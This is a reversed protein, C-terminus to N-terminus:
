QVFFWKFRYGLGLRFVFREVFNRLFIVYIAWKSWKSLELTLQMRFYYYKAYERLIRTFSRRIRDLVDAIQTDGMNFLDKREGERRVRIFPIFNFLFRHRGLENYTSSWISARLKLLGSFRRSILSPFRRLFVYKSKTNFFLRYYM